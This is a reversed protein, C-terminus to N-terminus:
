TSKDALSTRRGVPTDRGTAHPVGMQMTLKESEGMASAAAPWDSMKHDKVVLEPVAPGSGNGYMLYQVGLFSDCGAQFIGCIKFAWPIQTASSFFWYMKMADGLLWSALVSVRFGKCSRSRANSFIQPLPLTAEVSLGTYGILASYAPYLWHVPALVLECAALGLFMYLVFHWYPKASRWQWFRYPRPAEWLGGGGGDHARAFPVAAEGGKSSPGPRHDLAVKLLILQIFVMVFSQVLLAKDFHAGPYYFIRFLSAVLMILPIDLSFGASSRAKYMSIAQDTYSLLPSLVLFVPTLYGSFSALWGLM